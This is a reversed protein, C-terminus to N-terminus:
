IRRQRARIAAHQYLHEGFFLYPVSLKGGSVTKRKNLVELADSEYGAYILSIAQSVLSLAETDAKTKKLSLFDRNFAFPLPDLLGGRRYASGFGIELFSISFIRFPM